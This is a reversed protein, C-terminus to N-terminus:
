HNVVIKVRNKEIILPKQREGKENLGVFLLGYNKLVKVTNNVGQEKCDMIHNNALSVIDFEKLLSVAEEPASFVFKKGQVFDKGNYFPAELNAFTIDGEKLVDAVNKFIDKNSSVNRGLMVDGVFILNTM